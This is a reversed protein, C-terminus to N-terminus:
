AIVEFNEALDDIEVVFKTPMAAYVGDLHTLIDEYRDFNEEIDKKLDKVTMYVDENYRGGKIVEQVDGEFRKFRRDAMNKAAKAAGQAEALSIKM